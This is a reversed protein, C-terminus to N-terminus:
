SAQNAGSNDKQDGFIDVYAQARLERLFNNYVDESKRNEIAQRAKQRRAEDTRDQERKGLRKIIHWSDGAKFAPSIEGDKLQQIQTAVAEGWGDLPFWGMDGGQNATTDDDSDSKAIDAFTAKGDVIQKRLNKIKAEAQADTTFTDPKVSIHRAHFETVVTAPQDRQDVLKIIHFGGPDRMPPTVQGVKMKGIVDAFQPPMESLSRWGLDGGELADPAQSYRIAAAGFDMGSALAQEVEVAKARAASIDDATAGQPVNITIHALHAEGAKFGPSSLLNEIESDTVQVKQQLVQQRLKQVLIQDAIQQQFAAMSLGQQALADRMQASSLGNQQAIGGIANNVDDQTVRIGMDHARQVQLKQLILRDLVQKRLTAEPPLKSPDSQFQQKVTAIAQDLESELVVQDEVVAIISDLQRNQQQYQPLLQAHANAPTALIGACALMSMVIIQKM